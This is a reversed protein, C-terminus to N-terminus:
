VEEQLKQVENIAKELAGIELPLNNAKVYVSYDKSDRGWLWVAIEQTTNFGRAIFGDPGLVLYKHSYM